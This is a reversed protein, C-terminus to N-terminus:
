RWGTFERMSPIRVQGKMASLKALAEIKEALTRPQNIIWEIGAFVAAAHPNTDGELDLEHMARACAEAVEALEPANRVDDIFRAIADM